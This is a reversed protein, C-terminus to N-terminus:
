YSKHCASCPRLCSRTSLSAAHDSAWCCILASWSVWPRLSAEVRAAALLLAATLLAWAASPRWILRGPALLEDAYTAIVLRYRHLLQQANPLGWAFAFMALLGKLEPAGFYYSDTKSIGHMGAMGELVVRAAGFSDARFFVWAIVVALFTLLQALVRAAAPPLAYRSSWRLARWGHNLVLYLGHLGCWIVFTWGAGHWLGGLLMTAMVNAHRRLPHCRGGGVAHSPGNGGPGLLYHTPILAFLAPFPRKGSEAKCGLEIRASEM